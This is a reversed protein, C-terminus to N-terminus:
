AAAPAPNPDVPTPLISFLDQLVQWVQPGMQIAQQIVASWDGSQFATQLPGILAMIIPGDKQILPALKRILQLIGGGGFIRGVDQASLEGAGASVNGAHAQAKVLKDALEPPCKAAILQQKGDAMM